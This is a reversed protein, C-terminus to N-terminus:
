PLDDEEVDFVEFNFFSFNERDFQDLKKLMNWIEKIFLGLIFGVLYDM